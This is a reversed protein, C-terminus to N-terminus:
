RPSSSVSKRLQGGLWAANASRHMSLRLILSNPIGSPNEVNLCAGLESLDWIVCDIVAEHDEVAIHARKLTRHRAVKRLEQTTRQM